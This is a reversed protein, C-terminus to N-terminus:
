IPSISSIGFPRSANIVFTEWKMLDNEVFYVSAIYSGLATTGTPITLNTYYLGTSIRTMERPYGVLVSSDPYIISDVIPIYGDERNGYGDVTQVVLRITQGTNASIYNTGM